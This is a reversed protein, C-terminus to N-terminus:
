KIGLLVLMEDDTWKEASNTEFPIVQYIGASIETIATEPNIACVPRLGCGDSPASFSLRGTRSITNVSDGWNAQSSDACWFALFNSQRSISKHPLLDPAGTPRIGKRRFLAFMDEGVIETSLPLRMLSTITQQDVEYTSPVISGIEHEDFYYLLGFHKDYASDRHRIGPRFNRDGWTPAYDKDHRPTYWSAEDSNIYSFINSLHYQKNGFAGHVPNESDREMADFCIHDIAFETIFDCNPTAKLWTIPQPEGSGATYKGFVV